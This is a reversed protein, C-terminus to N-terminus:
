VPIAQFSKFACEDVLSQFETTIRDFVDRDWDVLDMKNVAMVLHRIGLMAVLRAHRHTQVQLGKSADVVLIAADSTSAGTAMNRTYQEHGPTDAVIFRRRPTQFFRYAVDITIGQEREAQLGDLLLALDMKDGQTGYRGSDREVASLQDDFVQKTEWLLRGLLTSKGDDVSGCTIFRLSDRM